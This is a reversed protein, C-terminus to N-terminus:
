CPHEKDRLMTILLGVCRTADGIGKYSILKKHGAAAVGM